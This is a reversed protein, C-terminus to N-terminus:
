DEDANVEAAEIRLAETHCTGCIMRTTHGEGDIDIDLPRFRRGCQCLLGRTMIRNGSSDAIAETTAPPTNHTDIM